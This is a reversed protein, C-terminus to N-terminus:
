GSKRHSTMTPEKSVGGQVPVEPLWEVNQPLPLRPTPAM